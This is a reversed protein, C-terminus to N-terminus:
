DWEENDAFSQALNIIICRSEISLTKWNQRIEESVYTRWDHVPVLIKEYAEWNPQLAEKKNEPFLM